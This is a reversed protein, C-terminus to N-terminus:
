CLRLFSGAKALLLRASFSEFRRLLVSLFIEICRKKKDEEKKENKENAARVRSM